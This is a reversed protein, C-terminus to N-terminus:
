SRCSSSPLPRVGIEKQLRAMPYLLEIPTDLPVVEVALSDTARPPHRNM